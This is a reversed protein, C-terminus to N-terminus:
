AGKGVVAKKLFPSLFFLGTPADTAVAGKSEGEPQGPPLLRLAWIQISRLRPQGRGQTSRGEGLM